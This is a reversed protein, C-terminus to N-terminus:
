PVTRITDGNSATGNTGDYEVAGDIGFQSLFAKRDCNGKTPNPYDAVNIDADGDPGNGALIWCSVGDTAYRYPLPGGSRGFSYGDLPIDRRYSIPTTLAWPVYGASVPLSTSDIPIVAGDADVALPYMGHDIYYTELNFGLDRLIPTTRSGLRYWKRQQQKGYGESMGIACGVALLYITGAMLLRKARRVPSRRSFLIPGPLLVIFLFGVLGYGFLVAHGSALLLWTCGALFCASAFAIWAERRYERFFIRPVEVLGPLALVSLTYGSLVFLTGFWAYGLFMGIAAPIRGRVMERSHKSRQRSVHGLILAVEACLIGILIQSHPAHSLLPANLFLSGEVAHGLSVMGLIGFVLAALGSGTGRGFGLESRTPEDV